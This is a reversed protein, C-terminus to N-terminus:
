WHWVRTISLVHSNYNPWLVVPFPPCWITDQPSFSFLCFWPWATMSQAEWPCSPKGGSERHRLNSWSCRKNCWFTGWHSSFCPSIMKDKHGDKSPLNIMGMECIHVSTQPPSIVQILSSTLQWDSGLGHGRMGGVGVMGRFVHRPPDSGWARELSTLFGPCGRRMVKDNWPFVIIAPHTCVHLHCGAEWQWIGSCLCKNM